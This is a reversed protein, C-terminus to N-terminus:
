LPSEEKLTSPGVSAQLTTGHFGHTLVALCAGLRSEPACQPSALPDPLTRRPDDIGLPGSSHALGGLGGGDDKLPGLRWRDLGNLGSADAKQSGRGARANADVVKAAALAGATGASDLNELTGFIERALFAHLLHHKSRGMDRRAISQGALGPHEPRNSYTNRLPELSEM